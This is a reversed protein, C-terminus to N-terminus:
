YLIVEVMGKVLNVVDNFNVFLLVNQELYHEYVVYADIIYNFMVNVLIVFYYLDLVINVNEEMLENLEVPVFLNVKSGKELINFYM